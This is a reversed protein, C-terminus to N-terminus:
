GRERRMCGCALVGQRVPRHHAARGARRRHGNGPVSQRDGRRGRRGRGDGAPVGLQRRHAAEGHCGHARPRRRARRRVALLQGDPQLGRGARRGARARGQGALPAAQAAHVQVGRQLACPGGAPRAAGRAGDGGDADACARAFLTTLYAGVRQGRACSAHRSRFAAASHTTRLAVCRAGRSPARLV